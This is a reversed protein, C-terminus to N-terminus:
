HTVKTLIITLQERDTTSLPRFMKALVDVKKASFKSFLKLTKQTPHIRIGRRDKPDTKRTVLKREYLHEVIATASPATIHLHTAIDKMTPHKESVVFRLVELQSITFGLSEAETRLATVLKQHFLMFTDELTSKM